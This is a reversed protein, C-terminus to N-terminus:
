NNYRGLTRALARADACTAHMFWHPSSWEKIAELANVYFLTARDMDQVSISFFTERVKLKV